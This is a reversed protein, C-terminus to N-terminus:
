TDTEARAAFAENLAIFGQATPGTLMGHLAPVLIGSFRESHVLECTSDGTPRVEFRHRGAVVWRGGLRGLWEFARGPIVETVTPRMTRPRRGELHLEVTLRHGVVLEGDLSRAFPNWDGWRPTDTLVAWAHATPAAIPTVATLELRGLTSSVTLVTLPTAIPTPYTTM